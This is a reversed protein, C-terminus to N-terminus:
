GNVGDDALIMVREVEIQGCTLKSLNHTVPSSKTSKSQSLILGASKLIIDNSIQDSVM